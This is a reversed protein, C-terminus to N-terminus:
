SLFLAYGILAFSAAIAAIALFIIFYIQFGAKLTPTGTQSRVDEIALFRARQQDKFQGTKLAWIFVITGIFVGTLIYALFFPYYM